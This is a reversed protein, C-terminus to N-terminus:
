GLRRIRYMTQEFLDNATVLPHQLGRVPALITSPAPHCFQVISLRGGASGSPAVVRHWAAPVQGDTLRELMMGSNIVAQGDDPTVPVWQDGVKVELGAATARPLATILDFDRHEVAWVHDPGPAQEMPPYWTARNMIPGDAVMEPFFEPGVGFAAGIVGLVRQQLAFMAEHLETLVRSIGPVLDDPFVPRPYRQPFRRVLPHHDPLSRGWHFLEKWDAVQGRVAHETLPPLYGAQGNAGPVVCAAKDEASLGFFKELMSYADDLLSAPIDHRVLVFGPALKALPVDGTLEIEHIV